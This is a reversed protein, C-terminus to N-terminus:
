DYSDDYVEDFDDPYWKCKRPNFTEWDDEVSIYKGDDIKYYHILLHKRGIYNPNNNEKNSNRCYEFSAIYLKQDPSETTIANIANFLAPKLGDSDFVGYKKGMRYIRYAHLWCKSGVIENAYDIWLIRKDDSLRIITVLSDDKDQEKKNEGLFAQLRKRSDGYVKSQLDIINDQEEPSSFEEKIYNPFLNQEKYHSHLYIFLNNYDRLDVSYNLLYGSPVYNEIQEVSQFRLGKPMWFVGDGNNIITKFERDLVLCKSMGFNLKVKSAGVQYGQSDTRGGYNEYYTGFYFKFYKYDIFLNDYGGILLTGEDDYLEKKGGIEYEFSSEDLHYEATRICEFFGSVINIIEYEFDIILACREDFCGWKNSKKAMICFHRTSDKYYDFVELEDYLCHVIEHFSEYSLIGYKNTDRDQIIRFPNDIYSWGYDYYLSRIKSPQRTLHNKVLVTGDEEAIGWGGDKYFEVKGLYKNSLMCEKFDITAGVPIRLHERNDLIKRAKSELYNMLSSYIQGKELEVNKGRQEDDEFLSLRLTPNQDFEKQAFDDMLSLFEPSLNFYKKIFEEGYYYIDHYKGTLDYNDVMRKVITNVEEVSLKDILKQYTFM